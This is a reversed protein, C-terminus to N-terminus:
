TEHQYNIEQNRTYPLNLCRLQLIYTTFEDFVIYMNFMKDIGKIINLGFDILKLTILFDLLVALVVEMRAAFKGNQKPPIM